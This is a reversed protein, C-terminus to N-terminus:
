ARDGKCLEYISSLLSVGVMLTIWGTALGYVLGVIGSGMLLSPVQLVLTALISLVAVQFITKKHEMTMLWADSWRM